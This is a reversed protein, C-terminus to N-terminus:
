TYRVFWKQEQKLSLSFSTGSCHKTNYDTYITQYCEENSGSNAFIHTFERFKVETTPIDKSLTQLKRLMFFAKLESM